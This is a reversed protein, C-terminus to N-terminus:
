LINVNFKRRESLIKKGTFNLHSRSNHKLHRRVLTFKPNIKSPHNKSYKIANPM